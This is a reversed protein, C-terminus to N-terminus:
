RETQASSTLSPSAITAKGQDLIMVDRQLSRSRFIVTDRDVWAETRLTEGPYFPQVM